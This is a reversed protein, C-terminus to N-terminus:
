ISSNPEIVSFGVAHNCRSVNRYICNRGKSMLSSIRGKLKKELSPMEFVVPSLHILGSNNDSSSNHIKGKRRNLNIHTM